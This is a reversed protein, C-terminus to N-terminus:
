SVGDPRMTQILEIAYGDPDKGFAMMPGGVVLRYPERTIAGGHEELRAVAAAVDGVGVAIHGYGSGHTYPEAQDWNFTLELGPGDAYDNFSLFLISFRYQEFDYRDLLRMGLGEVYFRLSREVDLVRFMTHLLRPRHAASGWIWLRDIDANEAPGSM